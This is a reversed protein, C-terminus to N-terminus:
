LNENGDFIGNYKAIVATEAKTYSKLVSNILDNVSTQKMYAIKSLDELMSPQLLLNLRKTKREQKEIIHTNQAKTEYLTDDMNSTNDTNRTYEYATTGTLQLPPNEKFIKKSM